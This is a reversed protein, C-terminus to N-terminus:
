FDEEFDNEDSPNDSENHIRHPCEKSVHDDATSGCYDCVVAPKEQEAVHVSSVSPSEAHDYGQDANIGMLRLEERSHRIREQYIEIDRERAKDAKSNAELLLWIVNDLHDSRHYPQMSKNEPSPDCCIPCTHKGIKLSGALCLWCFGHSCRLVVPLCLLKRCLACTLLSSLSKGDISGASSACEPIVSNKANVEVVPNEIPRILAKHLTDFQAKVEALERQHLERLARIEGLVEDSTCPCDPRDTKARKAVSDNTSPQIELNRKSGSSQIENKESLINKTCHADRPSRDENKGNDNNNDNNNDNHNGNSSTTSTSAEPELFVKYVVSISDTSLFAGLPINTMGGLRVIDGHCLLCSDIRQNNVFVGNTSKADKITVGRGDVEIQAHLRSVINKGEVPAKIQIDAKSGRGLTLSGLCLPIKTPASWGPREFNDVLALWGVVNSSHSVDNNKDVAAQKQTEM